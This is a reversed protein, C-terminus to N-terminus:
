TEADQLVREDGVRRTFRVRDLYELLPLVSRRSLGLVDRVEALRFRRGSRGAERVAECLRAMATAEVFLEPGVAVFREDSRALELMAAARQRSQGALAKLRPWEPPDLGASRLEAWIRELLAADEESLRPRFTALAAYPGRTVVVGSEILRSLIARGCGPASRRELWGVFRDAQIGPELPARRHHRGLHDAARESLGRLVDDLIEATGARTLRGAERLRAVFATAETPEIGALCAVREARPVVVGSLRLVEEVRVAPDGSEMRRLSEIEQPGPGIRRSAARLVVGGGITASATEDRIILRQGHSAPVATVFRLQVLSTGGPRIADADLCVLMATEERTGMSVRVRRHTPLPSERRRILRVRADIYRAAGLYGPTALEDGRRIAERELGTLNLAARQGARVDGAAEGHTQVERVKVMRGAPLLELTQGAAARGSIVSGTVVTGRGRVAFVRDIALRFVESARARRARRAAAVLLAKLPELGAGTQSSVASAPWDAIPTDAAAARVDAEVRRVRDADALDAKSVAIVGSEVGLLDLIELHERTQPMVGDDAAVVLLALDIGTAGAVMTRVFREHGPVDVIGFRMGEADLRAFGLEITMGRRQEEPLRDPDTGTLAKVLSSKGHDIHGATGLLWVERQVAASM